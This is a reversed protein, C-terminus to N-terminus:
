FLSIEEDKVEAEVTETEEEEGQQTQEEEKQAEKDDFRSKSKDNKEKEEQKIQKDQDGEKNNEGEVMKKKEDKKKDEREVFGPFKQELNNRAISCPYAIYEGIKIVATLDPITQIESSLFVPIIRKQRTISLGDRNDEVGMGHTKKAEEVEVQGLSSALFNATDPSDVRLIIKTMCNNWITERLERGYMQDVHGFDQIGLWLSIGKSRGLTLGEILSPLKQLAGLEDVIFFRRRKLDDPLSLMENVLINVVASICPKLLTKYQPPVPLFLFGPGDQRIWKRFSFDGDLLSLERFIRCYQTITARVGAAQNTAIKGDTTCLYSTAVHGKILELIKELPGSLKEWVDKNKPHDCLMLRQLIAAFVDRAADRFFKETGDTKKADPIFSQAFDITQRENEIDLFINWEVCRKDLPNFIIDHEPEYFLSLYDGKLDFIVAKEERDRLKQIVNILQTTKGTGTQGIIFTHRTEIECPQKIEKCLPLCLNNYKGEIEKALEDPKWIKTGRKIKKKNVEKSKKKFFNVCPRLFVVLLFLYGIIFNFLLKFFFKVYYGKWVQYVDVANATKVVCKGSKCIIVNMAKAPNFINYWLSKIWVLFNYMKYPYVIKLFLIFFPSYLLLIILCITLYMKAKMQKEAFWIEFGEFVNSKEM